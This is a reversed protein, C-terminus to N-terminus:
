KIEKIHKNRDAIAEQLCISQHVRHEIGDPDQVIEFYFLGKGKGPARMLQRRCVWCFSPSGNGQRAKTM